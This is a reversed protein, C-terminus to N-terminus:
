HNRSSNLLQQAVRCDGSWADGCFFVVCISPCFCAHLRDCHCSECSGASALLGVTWARLTSLCVLCGWQTGSPRLFSPRVSAALGRSGQPDRKLSPPRWSSGRVARSRAHPRDLTPLSPGLLSILRALAVPLVQSVLAPNRRPAISINHPWRTPITMCYQLHVLNYVEICYIMFETNHSSSWLLFFSSSFVLSKGYFLLPFFSCLNRIPFCGDGWQCATAQGTTLHM